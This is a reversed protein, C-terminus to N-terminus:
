QSSMIRDASVAIMLDTCYKFIKTVVSYDLM